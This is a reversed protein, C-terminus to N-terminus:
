HPSLDHTTAVITTKAPAAPPDDDQDEQQAAAAAAPVAPAAIVIAAAATAAAVIVVAATAAAAVVVAAAVVAAALGSACLLPWRPRKSRLSAPRLAAARGSPWASVSPFRGLPRVAECRSLFRAATTLLPSLGFRLSLPFAGGLTGSLKRATPPSLVAGRVPAAHCSARLLPWRPRKSRLSAPRLAAACGSPWASVFPFRGLPRVAECRSVFRAATACLLRVGSALPACRGPMVTGM